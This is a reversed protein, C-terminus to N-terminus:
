MTPSRNHQTRRGRGLRPKVPRVERRAELVDAYTTWDSVQRDRCFEAVARGSAEKDNPAEVQMQCQCTLHDHGHDDPVSKLFRMQFVPM